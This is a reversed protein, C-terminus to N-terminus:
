TGAISFPSQAHKPRNKYDKQKQPNQAETEVHGAAQNVDQQHYGHDYQDDVKDGSASCNLRCLAGLRTRPINSYQATFVVV